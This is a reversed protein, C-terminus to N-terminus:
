GCAPPRNEEDLPTEKFSRIDPIGAAFMAVRLGEILIELETRVAAASQTAPAVLPQALGVLDAGLALAVAADPGSRIGGSAILPLNPAGRQAELIADATPMGWHAFSAAVRRQFENEARHKEVESWSTGGAGSVDIAAVGAAALQQAVRESIGCGVEKIIVPVGLDRCVAAIKDLLGSFDTNGRPQLAEQLPNLHLVLADAEIMEVARRCEALGYGYNLQVAGLNAFLLIDPAVQRVQYSRTQRPNEIAARQSGVCMALGLEQAAAALNLNIRRSSATGGTIASILVPARLTKGLFVTSLDVQDLSMEPLACHRLRYRQLGTTVGAGRVDEERCIRLHDRKRKAHLDTM